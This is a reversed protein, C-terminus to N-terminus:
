ALALDANKELSRTHPGSLYEILADSAEGWGRCVDVRYGQERLVQIWYQQRATVRGGNRRKMEIFFGFYGSRAVPLFLDPVGAAVGERRLKAAVPKHRHGGNPIHFLLALEPYRGNARHCFDILYQQEHSESPERHRM